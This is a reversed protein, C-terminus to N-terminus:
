LFQKKHFQFHPVPTPPFFKIGQIQTQYDTDWHALVHLVQRLPISTIETSQCLHQLHSAVFSTAKHRHFKAARRQPSVKEM